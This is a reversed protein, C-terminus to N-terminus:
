MCRHGCSQATLVRLPVGDLPQGDPRCLYAAGHTQALHRLFTEYGMKDLPDVNWEEQAFEGGWRVAASAKGAKAHQESFRLRLM